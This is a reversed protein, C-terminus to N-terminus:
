DLWDARAPGVDPRQTRQELPRFRASALLRGNRGIGLPRPSSQNRRRYARAVRRRDWLLEGNAIRKWARANTKKPPAWHAASVRLVQGGCALCRLRPLGLRDVDGSPDPEVRPTVDRCAPCVNM